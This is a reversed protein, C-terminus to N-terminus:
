QCRAEVRKWIDDPTHPTHSADELSSNMLNCVIVVVNATNFIAQQLAYLCRTSLSTFQAVESRQVFVQVTCVSLGLAPIHLNLLQSM